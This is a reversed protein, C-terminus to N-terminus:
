NRKTLEIYLDYLSDTSLETIDQTYTEGEEWSDGVIELDKTIKVISYTDHQSYKNVVYFTPLEYYNDDTGESTDYIVVDEKVIDKIRDILENRVNSLVEYYNAIVESTNIVKKM